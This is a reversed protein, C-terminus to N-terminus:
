FLATFFANKKSREKEKSLYFTISTGVGAIAFASFIYVVTLSLTFLGFESPGLYRALLVKSLYGFVAAVAFSAFVYVSSKIIKKLESM